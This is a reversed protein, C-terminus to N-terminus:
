DLLIVLFEDYRYKMRFTTKPIDEEKARLQHYGIRLDIKSFYKADNLQNFLDDMRPLHYMNKVIVRNLKRYDICLRLTGDKKTVSLVPAGWPSTSPHIFGKSLSEELQTKLEKLELPTMRYSAVSISNTVLYVKISFNFEGYPPISPLENPFVDQFKKVM